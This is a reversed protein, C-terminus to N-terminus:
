CPRCRPRDHCSIEVGQGAQRRREHRQPQCGVRRQGAGAARVAGPAVNLHFLEAILPAAVGIAAALADQDALAGVLQSALRSAAGERDHWWGDPRSGVVNAADVVLDTM